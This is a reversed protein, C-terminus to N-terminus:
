CDVMAGDAHLRGCRCIFDILLLVSNMKVLLGVDHYKNSCLHHIVVCISVFM